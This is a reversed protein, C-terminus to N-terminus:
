LEYDINRNKLEQKIYEKAEEVANSISTRPIGTERALKSFNPTELWMRFLRAKFWLDKTNIEMEELIGEIAEVIYDRDYNYDDQGQKELRNNFDEETLNRKRQGIDARHIKYYRTFESKHGFWANRMIALIFARLHGVKPEDQDRLSLEEFRPHGLLKEIAYHALDDTLEDSKTINSAWQLINTYNENIWHM